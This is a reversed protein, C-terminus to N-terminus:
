IPSAVGAQQAALRVSLRAAEVAADQEAQVAALDSTGQAAAVAADRKTLAERYRALATQFAGLATIRATVEAEREKETPFLDRRLGAAIQDGSPGALADGIAALIPRADRVEVLRGEVNLPATAFADGTPPTTWLMVPARADGEEFLLTESGATMRGIPIFGKSADATTLSNPGVNVGFEFFLGRDVADAGTDLTGNYSIVLPRLAYLGGDAWIVQAELFFLPDHALRVGKAELGERLTAVNTAVAAAPGALWQPSVSAETPTSFEGHVFQVCDFPGVVTAASAAGGITTGAATPGQNAGAVRLGAYVAVAREEGARQLVGGLTDVAFNLAIPALAAVAAASEKASEFLCSGAFLKTIPGGSPGGLLDPSTYNVARSDVTLTGQSTGSGVGGSCGALLGVMGAAVLRATM